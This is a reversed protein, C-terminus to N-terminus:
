SLYHAVECHWVMHALGQGWYDQVTSYPQGFKRLWKVQANRYGSDLCFSEIGRDALSNAMAKILASAIGQGQYERLVYLSGLEPIIKLRGGTCRVIDDNCPGISIMGVLNAGMRAVLFRIPSRENFLADQLMRRKGEIEQQIEATLAALGEERFAEPITRRFLEVAPELDTPKLENIEIM